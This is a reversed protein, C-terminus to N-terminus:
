VWAGDMKPRGFDYVVLVTLGLGKQELDLRGLRCGKPGFGRSGLVGKNDWGGM